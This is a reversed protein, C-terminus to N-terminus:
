LFAAGSNLGCPEASLSFTNPQVSRTIERGEQGVLYQVMWQCAERSKSLLVEVTAMWEETDVSSSFVSPQRTLSQEEGGPPPHTNVVYRLKKKTHLYTHLLFHVALQLSEKAMPQYDPHKLKTQHM